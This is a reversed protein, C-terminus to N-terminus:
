SRVCHITSFDRYVLDGEFVTLMPVLLEKGAVTIGCVDAFEFNGQQQEFVAINVRAGGKLCGIRGEMGMKRAPTSTCCALVKEFPMGLALFRSMLYPLSVAPEYNYTKRTFDGSIIDPEIGATLAAKACDHGLHGKGCASELVIGKKVAREM